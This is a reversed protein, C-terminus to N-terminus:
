AVSPLHHTLAPSSCLLNSAKVYLANLTEPSIDLTKCALTIMDLNASQGVTEASNSLTERNGNECIDFTPEHSPHVISSLDHMDLSEPRPTAAALSSRTPACDFNCGSLLGTEQGYQGSMTQSGVVHNTDSLKVMGACDNDRGDEAEGSTSRAEGTRARKRNGQKSGKNVHILLASSCPCGSCVLNRVRSSRVKM